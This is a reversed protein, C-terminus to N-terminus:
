YFIFLDFVYQGNHVHEVDITMTRKKGALMRQHHDHILGRHSAKITPSTM